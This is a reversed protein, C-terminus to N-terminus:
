LAKPLCFSFSSGKGPRSVVCIDQHHAQLIHRTISLGLGTGGEKCSRAKDVRYFREFIRTLHEKEVGIGTDEIFFRIAAADEEASLRLTGKQRNYKIGNALLNM